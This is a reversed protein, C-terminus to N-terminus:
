SLRRVAQLVGARRLKYYQRFNVYFVDPATDAAMSILFASESMENALQLGGANILNIDPNQRNFEDFVALRALSRSDVADRPPIGQYPGAMMRVTIKEGAAFVCCALIGAVCLARAQVVALIRM